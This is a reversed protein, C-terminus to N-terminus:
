SYIRLIGDIPRIDRVLEPLGDTFAHEKGALERVRANPFVKRYFKLHEFPVIEDGTSHYFYISPLNPMSEEFDERLVFDDVEWDEEGWHPIAVLFLGAISIRTIEESLYKLLMSGGLSHGILIVPETIKEFEEDFMRKWAEYTPAEPDEIIPYYIEFVNSLESRLFSVLDYSGQGASGQAGGSHAFVIPKLKSVQEM